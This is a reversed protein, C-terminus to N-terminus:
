LRKALTVHYPGYGLARYLRLAGANGAVATIEVRKLGATRLRGEAAAILARAIGRGRSAPEVWLDSIRGVSRTEEPVYAGFEQEVGFIIFGALATEAEAVLVGGGPHEAAWAELAALHREAMEAGPARNPELEREFDQFAAMFGVLAPRDEPRAERVTVEVM